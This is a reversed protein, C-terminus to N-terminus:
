STEEVAVPSPSPASMSPLTGKWATLWLVYLDAIVEGSLAVHDDVSRRLYVPDAGLDM